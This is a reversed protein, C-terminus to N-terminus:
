NQGVQLTQIAQFHVARIRIYSPFRHAHPIYVTTYICYYIYRELETWSAPYKATGIRERFGHM